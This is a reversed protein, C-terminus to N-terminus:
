NKGELEICGVRPNRNKIGTRDIAEAGLATTDNRSGRERLKKIESLKVMYGTIRVLDNGSVNATFERLGANLSGKCLQYMAAPNSKITEDVSLIDSIGSEYYKHHGAVAKIHTLLEPEDGYVIRTGPTTNEDSSIGAQSHLLARGQYGYTVPTKAVMDHLSKSISHAMANIQESAGYVGKIGMKEALLNTAEAMGYIGWMPSFRDEFILSEQVLFSHFFGSKEHLFRTRAEILEFMLSAAQPLLTHTFEDVSGAGEALTKLNLRVLTNAGGALPLANYCSVIGFGTTAFVAEHLPYNAIHPKNSICINDTAQRLMTESSKDPDFMYTLNPVAQQLEADVKLIVQCLINDEPGINAHVFADPFIRDLQIWFLRMKKTLQEVSLDAVYPLLIQDLHGLFVPLGTVSPVHHYIIMLHALAEDFDSAPKLELYESGQQLFKQYDPLVYRPKYPAHGEFMDCILGSDLASQLQNSIEPYEHQEDATLSLLRAKQRFDLKSDCIISHIKDNLESM